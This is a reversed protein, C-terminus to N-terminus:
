QLITPRVSAVDHIEQSKLTFNGCALNTTSLLEEFVVNNWIFFSHLHCRKMYLILGCVCISTSNMWAPRFALQKVSAKAVDPTSLDEGNSTGEHLKNERDKIPPITRRWPGKIENNENNKQYLVRIGKYGLTKM